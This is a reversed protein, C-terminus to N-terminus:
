LMLDRTAASIEMAWGSKRSSSFNAARLNPKKLYCNMGQFRSRIPVSATKLYKIVAYVIYFVLSRRVKRCIEFGSGDPLTLDLILLDHRNDRILSFARNVTRATDVHFGHKKLSYELGDILSLDDEVLLIRKM